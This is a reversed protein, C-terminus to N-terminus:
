PHVEGLENFDPTPDVVVAWGSTYCEYANTYERYYTSSSKLWERASQEPNDWDGDPYWVIIPHIENRKVRMVKMKFESRSFKLVDGRKM